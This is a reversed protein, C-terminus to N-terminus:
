CVGEVQIYQRWADGYSFRSNYTCEGSPNCTSQAKWANLKKMKDQIQVHIDGESNMSEQRRKGEQERIFHTLNPSDMYCSHDEALDMLNM